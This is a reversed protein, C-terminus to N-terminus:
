ILKIKLGYAEGILALNKKFEPVLRFSASALVDKGMAEVYVAYNMGAVLVGIIVGEGQQSQAIREALSRGTNVGQSAGQFFSNIERGDQFLVYGISGRLNGSQDYFGVDPPINKAYNVTEKFARDIAEIVDIIAKEKAKEIYERLAQENFRVKIPM